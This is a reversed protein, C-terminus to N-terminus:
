RSVRALSPRDIGGSSGSGWPLMMLSVTATAMGSTHAIQRDDPGALEDAGQLSSAKKHMVDAAAVVVQPVGVPGADEDGHGDVGAVELAAGKPRDQAM